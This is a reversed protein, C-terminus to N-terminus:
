PKKPFSEPLIWIEKQKRSSAHKANLENKAKLDLKAPPREEGGVFVTSVNVLLNPKKIQPPLDALAVRHWDNGNLVFAVYFEYDPVQWTGQGFATQVSCVLYVTGNPLVDMLMPSLGRGAWHVKRSVPAPLDATISANDFLYGRDFGAGVDMVSRFETMLQATILQGSSLEVEETWEFKKM